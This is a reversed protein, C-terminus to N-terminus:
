KRPAYKWEMGVSCRGYEPKSFMSGAVAIGLFELWSGSRVKDEFERAAYRIWSGSGSSKELENWNPVGSGGGGGGSRRVAQGCGTDHHMRRTLKASLVPDGATSVRVFPQSNTDFRVQM